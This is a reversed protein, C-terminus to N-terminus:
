NNVGLYNYFRQNKCLPEKDITINESPIVDLVQAWLNLAKKEYEKMFTKVNEKIDDFNTTEVINPLDEWKDFYVFLHKFESNYFEVYKSIGDKVDKLEKQSFVYLNDNLLERFLRESPLIVAVGYRFNEMMKMISVQYPLMLIAKYTSLVLPGGYRHPLKTFKIGIRELNPLTINKDHKSHDIFAIEDHVEKHEENLLYYPAYGLPRILYYKPIFVGHTCAYYTEFPNNEVVVLNRNGLIASGIRHLYDDKVQSNVFIDFRNTIELIVKAKCPNIFFIYSDPIIDSIIIFEYKNCMMEVFSRCRDKEFCNPRQNFGYKPQIVTTHVNLLSGITSFNSITGEHRSVYLVNKKINSNKIETNTNNKFNDNEINTNNKFNNNETNTNNKFNNNETNTNNKFNNNETNTNNKFIISKIDVNKINKYSIQYEIIKYGFNTFNLVNINDDRSVKNLIDENFKGVPKLNQILTIFLVSFFLVPFIVRFIFKDNRIMTKKFM